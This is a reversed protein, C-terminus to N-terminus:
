YRILREYIVLTSQSHYFIMGQMDETEGFITRGILNWHVENPTLLGQLRINSLERFQSQFEDTIMMLEDECQEHTQVYSIGLLTQIAATTQTNPVACIIDVIVEITPRPHYGIQQQAGIGEDAGPTYILVVPFPPGPIRRQRLIQNVYSDATGTIFHINEELITRIANVATRFQIKMAM